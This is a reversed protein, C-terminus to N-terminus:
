MRVFSVWLLRAELHLCIGLEWSPHSNPPSPPCQEVRCLSSKTNTRIGLQALNSNDQLILFLAPQQPPLAPLPKHSVTVLLCRVDPTVLLPLCLPQFGIQLHVGLCCSCVVGCLNGWHPNQSNGPSRQQNSLCLPPPHGVPSNSDRVM